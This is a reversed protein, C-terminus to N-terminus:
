RHLKIFNYVYSLIMHFTDISRHNNYNFYNILTVNKVVITINIMFHNGGVTRLM